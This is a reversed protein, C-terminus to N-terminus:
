FVAELGIWGSDHNQPGTKTTIRAKITWSVQRKSFYFIVRFHFGIGSTRKVNKLPKGKKVSCNELEGVLASSARRSFPDSKSPKRKERKGAHNEVV